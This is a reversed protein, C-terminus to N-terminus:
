VVILVLRRGTIVYSVDVIHQSLVPLNNQQLHRAPLPIFFYLLIYQQPCAKGELKIRMCEVPFLSGTVEAVLITIYHNVFLVAKKKAFFPTGPM